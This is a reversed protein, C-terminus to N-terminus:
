STRRFVMEEAVRGEYPPMGIKKREVMWLFAFLTRGVKM